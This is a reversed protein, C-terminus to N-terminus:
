GPFATTTSNVGRAASLLLSGVTITMQLPSSGTHNVPDATVHSFNFPDVTNMTAAGASMMTKHYDAGAWSVSFGIEYHIIRDLVYAFISGATTGAIYSITMINGALERREEVVKAPAFIMPVSGTIGNTVGLVATQLIIMFESIIKTHFPHQVIVILLIAPIMFLRKKTSKLIKDDWREYSYAGLLKGMLDFLNFVTMVLVPMWTGFRPSVLDSLVGPYISLTVFYCLFIALMQKWIIKSVEERLKYGSKFSSWFESLTSKRLKFSSGTEVHVMVDEVKYTPVSNANPDYMPNAFSFANEDKFIKGTSLSTEAFPEPQSQESDIYEETPELSIKKKSDESRAIYFKVFDSSQVIQFLVCSTMVVLHSIVFFSFTSIRLDKTLMKTFIRNISVWLGAASEGIMVAQTYKIPLISTYGYFSSQQITAGWAILGIAVLNLCYSTDLTFLEDWLIEVAGVFLLMSITLGYGINIRCTFSLTEVLLNNTLVAVFAVMIYVITMDFVVMSVPYKTQFYDVAMVFSNYPFLFGAGALVMAMYTKGMNDVPPTALPCINGRKGLAVYGRSLNEDM